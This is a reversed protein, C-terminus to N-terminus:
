NACYSGDMAAREIWSLVSTVRAYVAPYGKEGCRYGWSVVGALSYKGGELSVLPGGSDGNCSSKGGTGVFGACLMADVITESRFVAQCDDNSIIPVTVELLADPSDGGFSTAGWGTVVADAGVFTNGASPLCAPAMKNDSPFTIESALKLLSFDHAYDNIRGRYAPHNKIEEVDARIQNDDTGMLHEQLLVQIQHEQYPVEIGNVKHIMCHAATLVYRSNIITGGCWIFDGGTVVLGVQWPYENAETEAGGVIRTGRNVNGCTCDQPPQPSPPKAVDVTCEFGPRVGWIDTHWHIVMQSQAAVGDPGNTGCFKDGAVQLWDYDCSPTIEVDFSSCTVSIQDDDETTRLKYYCDVKISYDGPGDTITYQGRDLSVWTQNVSGCTLTPRDAPITVRCRYGSRAVSHDSHFEINLQSGAYTTPMSTGCHKTGNVELWDYGCEANYELNFKDCTLQIDKDSDTTLTYSCDADNPYDNPFNPSQIVYSSGEAIVHSGCGLVENTQRPIPGKIVRTESFRPQPMKGNLSPKKGDLSPKKGDPSPRKGYPVAQKPAAQAAALLACLLLFARM